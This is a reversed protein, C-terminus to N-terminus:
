RGRIACRWRICCICIVCVARASSLIQSLNYAANHYRQYREIQEQVKANFFDEKSWYDARKVLENLADFLPRNGILFRAELLNTVITIDQKGELQM